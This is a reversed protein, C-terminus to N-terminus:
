VLGIDCSQNGFFALPAGGAEVVEEVHQHQIRTATMIKPVHVVQWACIQLRKAAFTRHSEPGPGLDLKVVHLGFKRFAGRLM